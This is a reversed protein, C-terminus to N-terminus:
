NVATQKEILKVIGQAAAAAVADANPGWAGDLEGPKIENKQSVTGLSEGKADKVTWQIQIQQLDGGGQEASAKVAKGLIVKGEVRHTVGTPGPVIALGNRGLEKQLAQALSKAGDGPAGAVQAVVVSRSANLSGTTTSAVPPKAAATQVPATAAATAATAASGDASASAPLWALLSSAAKSSVSQVVEPTAATWADGAAVPAGMEEGTIRNVRKGSADMVDWIYSFKTRTKEKAAVVYGRVTYEPAGQDAKVIQVRDQELARSIQQALDGAIAQTPGIVPAIAVRARNVPKVPAAQALQPSAPGSQGFLGNSSECGAM